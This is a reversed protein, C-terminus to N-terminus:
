SDLLRESEPLARLPMISALAVLRHPALDAGSAIAAAVEARLVGAHERDADSPAFVYENLFCQNALACGFALADQTDALLASRAATLMRELDRDVIPAADLLATLLPDRALMAPDAAARAVVLATAFRALDRARGWREVLARQVLADLGDRDAPVPAAHACAIFLRRGDATDALALSARSAVLAEAPRDAGLRARALNAHFEASDPRAAVAAELPAIAAEPRGQRLRLSG